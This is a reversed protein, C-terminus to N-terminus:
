GDRERAAGGQSRAADLGDMVARIYEHRRGQAWGDDWAKELLAELTTGFVREFERLTDAREVVALREPDNWARESM